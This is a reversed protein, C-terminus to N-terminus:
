PHPGPREQLGLIYRWAAVQTHRYRAYGIQTSSPGYFKLLFYCVGRSAQWKQMYKDERIDREEEGVVDGSLFGGRKM